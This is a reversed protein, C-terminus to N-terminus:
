RPEAIQNFVCFRGDTESAVHAQRPHQEAVRSQFRSLITKRNEFRSGGEIQIPERKQKWFIRNVRM